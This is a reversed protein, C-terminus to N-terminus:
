SEYHTVKIKWWDISFIKYMYYTYKKVYVYIQSFVYKKVYM